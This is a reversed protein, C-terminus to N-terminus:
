RYVDRRHGVSVITVIRNKDDLRYLVRYDGVRIRWEDRNVLKAARIPRPNESLETIASIVLPILRPNTKNLHRLQRLALPSRLVEYNM